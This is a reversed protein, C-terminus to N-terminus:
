PQAIPQIVSMINKARHNVERILRQLHADARKRETIDRVAAMEVRRQEIEIPSLVIDVPLESRDARQGLLQLDTGMPRTKPDKMYSIRHALHRDRLRGPVLMEISQGLM